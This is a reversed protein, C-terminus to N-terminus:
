IEVLASANEFIVGYSKFRRLLNQQRNAVRHASDFRGPFEYKAEPCVARRYKTTM